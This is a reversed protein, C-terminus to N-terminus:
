EGGSEAGLMSRPSMAGRLLYQPINGLDLTIGLQPVRGRELTSATKLSSGILHTLVLALSEEPLQIPKPSWWTWEYM